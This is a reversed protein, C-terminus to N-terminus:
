DPVDIAGMRMMTEYIGWAYVVSEFARIWDGQEQFYKCDSVYANVNNMSEKVIKEGVNGTSQVKPLEKELKILWKKTELELQEETEDM